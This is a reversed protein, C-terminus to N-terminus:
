QVAIAVESAVAEAFQIPYPQARLTLYVGASDRGQLVIHPRQTRSCRNKHPHCRKQLVYFNWYKSWISTPKKWLEGYQCYDLTIIDSATKTVCRILQPMSWIFSSAPNEFGFPIHQQECVQIFRLVADLLANGERVKRLDKPKLQPLGQVHFDDRLPGPGLGDHKRASTFSTCPIGFWIFLVRGSKIWNIIRHQLSIDLINHSDDICIDIPFTLIGRRLLCKTIRATGAFLEICFRRPTPLVRLLDPWGLSTLADKSIGFREYDEGYQASVM